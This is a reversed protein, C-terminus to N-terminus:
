KNEIQTVKEGREQNIYITWQFNFNFNFPSVRTRAKSIWNPEWAFRVDLNFRGGLFNIM